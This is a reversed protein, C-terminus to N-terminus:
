RCPPVPHASLLTYLFTPPTTTRPLGGLIAYKNPPLVIRLDQLFRPAPPEAGGGFVGAGPTPATTTTPATTPAPLTTNALDTVQIVRLTATEEPAPTRLGLVIADSNPVCAAALDLSIGTLPAPATTTPQPQTSPSDSTIRATQGNFVIVRPAALLSAKPDGAIKRCLADVAPADLFDPSSAPAGKADPLYAEIPTPLAIILTRIGIQVLASKRQDAILRVIRAHARPTQNVILQGQHEVITGITGTCPTDGIVRWSDPEIANAILACLANITHADQPGLFDPGGTGGHSASSSWGFATHPVPIANENPPASALLVDHVDYVRLQQYKQDLHDATSILLTGEDIYFALRTSVGLDELIRALAQRCSLAATSVNVASNKDVAAAELAPWIPHIDVGAATAIATLTQEFGHSGLAPAPAQLKRATALSAPSDDLLAPDLAPLAAQSPPSTVPATPTTSDSPGCAVPTLLLAILLVHRFTM